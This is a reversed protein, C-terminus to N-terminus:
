QLATSKNTLVNRTLTSGADQSVLISTVPLSLDEGTVKFITPLASSCFTPFARCPTFASSAFCRPARFEPFTLLENRTTQYITAGRTSTRKPVSSCFPADVAAGCSINIVYHWSPTTRKAPQQKHQVPSWREADSTAVPQICYRASPKRPPHDNNISSWCTFGTWHSAICFLLNNWSLWTFSICGSSSAWTLNSLKKKKKKEKKGSVRTGHVNSNM